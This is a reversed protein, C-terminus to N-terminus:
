ATIGRMGIRRAPVGAWIEWAPVDRTVVSGAAVVAGRGVTVGPLVTANVFLAAYARITTVRYDINQWERPAAASIAKSADPLTVASLVKAGSSLNAYDGIEVTGGGVGVHCFSAIHVGRGITVGLGGEIKVFSDIRSNEGLHVLEPRLIVVPEFIRAGQGFSALQRQWDVAL